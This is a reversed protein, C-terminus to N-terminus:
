MWSDYLNRPACDIRDTKIRGLEGILKMKTLHSVFADHGSGTLERCLQITSM